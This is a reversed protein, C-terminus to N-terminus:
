SNSHKVFTIYTRSVTYHINNWQLKVPTNKSYLYACMCILLWFRMGLM